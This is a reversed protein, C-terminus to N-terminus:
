RIKPKEVPEYFSSKLQSVKGIEWLQRLAELVIPWNTRYQNLRMLGFLDRVM